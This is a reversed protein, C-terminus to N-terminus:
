ACKVLQESAHGRVGGDIKRVDIDGELEPNFVLGNRTPPPSLSSLFSEVRKSKLCLSASGTHVPRHYLQTGKGGKREEEKRREWIGNRGTQKSASVMMVQKSVEKSILLSYEM